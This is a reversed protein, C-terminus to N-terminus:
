PILPNFLGARPLQCITRSHRKGSPLPEVVVLRYRWLILHLAITLQLFDGRSKDRNKYADKEHKTDKQEHM